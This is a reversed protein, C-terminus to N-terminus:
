VLKGVTLVFVYVVIQSGLTYSHSEIYLRAYWAVLVFPAAVKGFSPTVSENKSAASPM